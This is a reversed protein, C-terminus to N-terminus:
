LVRRRRRGFLAAFVGGVLVVPACVMMVMGGILLGKAAEHKSDAFAVRDGAYYEEPLIGGASARKGLVTVLDGNFFGKFRWSGHPVWEGNYQAEDYSDSYVLEEHVPGSLKADNAALTRVVMTGVLLNLDPVVQEVRRWDGDPEPESDSDDYDPYSVEWEDLRYAVFGGDMLPNDDLRGTILLEEGVAASGVDAAEMLPMREIRRAELEQQPSLVFTMLAGCGLLFVAGIVAAGAAGLRERVSRFINM